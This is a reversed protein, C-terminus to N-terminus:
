VNRGTVCLGVTSCRRAKVTKSVADDPRDFEVFGFGNKVTVERIRGYRSMGRREHAGTMMYGRMRGTQLIGRVCSRVSAPASWLRARARPRLHPGHPKRPIGMCSNSGASSM